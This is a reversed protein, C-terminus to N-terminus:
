MATECVSDFLASFCGGERLGTRDGGGCLRSAGAAELAGPGLRLTATERHGWGCESPDQSRRQDACCRCSSPSLVLCALHAPTAWGAWPGPGM